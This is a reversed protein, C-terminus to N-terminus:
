PGFLLGCTEILDEARFFLSLPQHLMGQMRREFLLEEIDEGVPLCNIILSLLIYYSITLYGRFASRIIAM